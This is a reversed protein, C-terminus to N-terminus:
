IVFLSKQVDGEKQSFNQNPYKFIYKEKSLDYVDIKLCRERESQVKPESINRININTEQTNYYLKQQPVLHRCSFDIM